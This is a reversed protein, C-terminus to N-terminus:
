SMMDTDDNDCCSCGCNCHCEHHPNHPNNWGYHKGNHKETSNIDLEVIKSTNWEKM